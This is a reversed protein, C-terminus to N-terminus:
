ADYPIPDVAGAREFGRLRLVCSECRGCARRAGTYCSWTHELPAGLELGLRIVGAKDKTLLPAEVLIGAGPRTGERVLRNFAEVYSQRCDPYGSSDQEMCGIVVRTAGCVEAWSVAAALLHTNRFPVYTGPIRSPDPEGEEVALAADTLSSGRVRRLLPIEVCLRREEAVGLRAAIADFSRRERAATRQGYDAHLLRIGYRRAAWAAAVCSDLGGSLLVIAEPEGAM